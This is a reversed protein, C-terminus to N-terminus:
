ARTVDRILTVVGRVWTRIKGSGDVVQLDWVGGSTLAASSTAPLTVTVAGAAGLTVAFSVASASDASPRFQATGTCGTWDVPVASDVDAGTSVKLEQTFDDGRVVTLNVTAPRM